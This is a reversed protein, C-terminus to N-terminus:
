KLKVSITFDMNVYQDSFLCGPINDKGYTVKGSIENGNIVINEFLLNFALYTVLEHYLLEPVKNIDEFTKEIIFEKIVTELLLTKISKKEETVTFTTM